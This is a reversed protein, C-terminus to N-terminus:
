EFMWVVCENMGFVCWVFVGNEFLVDKVGVVVWKVDNMCWVVDCDDNMEIMKLM